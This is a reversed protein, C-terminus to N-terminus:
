NRTYDAVMFQQWEETPSQIYSIMRYHNSNVIEIVDQYKAITGDMEFSPGESELTLRDTAEDLTGEYPWLNSMMSAIFTGVFKKAAPDYGLTIMSKAVQGDSTKGDGEGIIWLEGLKRITQTGKLKIPQGQDDAGAEHEYDWQGVLEHLWKHENSPDPVQM